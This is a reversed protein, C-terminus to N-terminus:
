VYCLARRICANPGILASTTPPLEGATWKRFEHTRLLIAGCVDVWWRISWILCIDDSRFCPTRFSSFIVRLWFRMLTKIAKSHSAFDPPSRSGAQFFCPSCFYTLPKRLEPRMKRPLSRMVLWVPTAASWVCCLAKRNCASPGSMASPTPGATWKRFEHARLLIAGRGVM